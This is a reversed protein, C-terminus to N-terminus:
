VASGELDVPGLSLLRGTEELRAADHWTLQTAPDVLPEPWGAVGHAYPRLLVEVDVAAPPALETLEPLWRRVYHGDADYKAAWRAAIEKAKRDRVSLSMKGKANRKSEKEALDARLQAAADEAVKRRRKTEKLEEELKSLDIEM